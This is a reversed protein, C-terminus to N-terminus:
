EGWLEANIAAIREHDISFGDANSVVGCEALTRYGEEGKWKCIYPNYACEKPRFCSGDPRQMTLIPDVCMHRHECDRCVDIGNKPIDWQSRFQDSSIIGPIHSLDVGQFRWRDLSTPTNGFTGTEAVHLKRNAFTNHHQSENYLRQQVLLRKRDVNVDNMGSRVRVVSRVPNPEKVWEDEGAHTLYVTSLWPWQEILKQAGQVGEAWCEDYMFQVNEFHTNDMHEAVSGLAEMSTGEPWRFLVHFCRLERLLEVCGGLFEISPHSGLDIIANTIVSPTRFTTDLDTFCKHLEPEVLFVYERDELLQLYEGFTCEDERFLMRAQAPTFGEITDLVVSLDNPVYRFYNRQFDHVASRRYGRVVPAAVNRRYVLHEPGTVVAPAQSLPERAEM